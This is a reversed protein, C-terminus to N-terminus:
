PAGLRSQPEISVEKEPPGPDPLLRIGKGLIRIAQVHILLWARLPMSLRHRALSALSAADLPRAELDLAAVLLPAGRRGRQDLRHAARGPSLPPVPIARGDPHLALRPLGEGRVPGGRGRTGRRERAAPKGHHGGFTNQVEALIARLAGDAGFCFWFSVPYFRFRGGRLLTLIRVPGGALDIGAEALLADIWPRLPSGNRPGHEADRFGAVAPRNYGFGEVTADLEDLEALDLYAMWLPYRFTNRAPRSRAHM